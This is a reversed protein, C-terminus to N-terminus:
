RATEPRRVGGEFGRRLFRIHPGQVGAHWFAEVEDFLVILERVVDSAPKLAPGGFVRALWPSDQRFWGSTTRSRGPALVGFEPLHWVFADASSVRGGPSILGDPSARGFHLVFRPRGRKDWQVDCVYIAEASVKRFVFFRPAERLDILFGKAALHPAFAAKVAQRLEAAGM